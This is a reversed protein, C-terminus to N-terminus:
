SFKWWLLIAVLLVLSFGESVVVFFTIRKTSQTMNLWWKDLFVKWLRITLHRSSSIKLYNIISRAWLDYEQLDHVDPEPSSEIRLTVVQGNHHSTAGMFFDVSNDPSTLLIRLSRLSTSKEIIGSFSASTEDRDYEVDLEIGRDQEEAQTIRLSKVDWQPSLRIIKEYDGLLASIVEDSISVAWQREYVTNM